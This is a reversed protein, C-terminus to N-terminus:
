ELPQNKMVDHLRESIEFVKGDPYRKLVERMKRCHLNCYTGRMEVGDLIAMKVGVFYKNGCACYTAVCPLCRYLVVCRSVEMAKQCEFCTVESM